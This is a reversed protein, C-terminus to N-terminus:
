GKRTVKEALKGAGHGARHGWRQRSGGAGTGEGEKM